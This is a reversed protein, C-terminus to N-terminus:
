RASLAPWNSEFRQNLYTLRTWSDDRYCSGLMLEDIKGTFGGVKFDSLNERVGDWGAYEVDPDIRADNVFLTVRSNQHRNFAVFIWEGAAINNTGSNWFNIRTASDASNEVDDSMYYIEVVFGKEPVYRLAYEEPKEFITQEKDLSELQVWVSFCFYGNDGLTLNVKRATDLESSNEAVIFDKAGLSVGDGVVGVSLEAGTASDATGAFYGKEAADEVSSLGSDFRWVLSYSRNTPFVDNAYAPEVASNYSLELSDAVNLSDVNVWFVAEKALTNLSPKAIPLKKSRGGDPTIRVVEWRGTTASVFKAVSDFDCNDPTLRLALPIDSIFSSLTDTGKPLALPAVFTKVISDRETSDVVYKKDPILPDPEIIKAVAMTDGSVVVVGGYELTDNEFYLHVSLTEAPLSDVLVKGDHVVVERLVTTGLVTAVGVSGEKLSNFLYFQLAGPVALTDNVAVSDDETVKVNQVLLREGSEEHYAELSYTGTPISDLNFQGNANTETMYKAPLTESTADFDQPVCQVRARAAPKGGDLFLIGALEPSGTEASNGATSSNSSCGWFTASLAVIAPLINKCFKMM